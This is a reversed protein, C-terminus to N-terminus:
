VVRKRAAEADVKGQQALRARRRQRQLATREAVVQHIELRPLAARQRGVRMVADVLLRHLRAGVADGAGERRQEHVRDDAEEPRFRSRFLTTNPFLTDTRTSRPPRRIMVFFFYYRVRRSSTMM